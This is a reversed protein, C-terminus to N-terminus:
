SAFPNIVKVGTNKFDAVNRTVMTLKHRHATAALQSDLSPVTTGKKDWAAMLQGWVHATSTNFSLIRGEMRKCLASFWAQLAKKRKGAPLVEIGRRIEGISITSLYLESEHNRLWKIVQENPKTKALECFVNTDVLYSM